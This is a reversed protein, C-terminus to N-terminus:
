LSNALSNDSSISVLKPLTQEKSRPCFIDKANNNDNAVLNDALSEFVVYRVMIVLKSSNSSYSNAISNDSSISVLETTNNELDRVFFIGLM